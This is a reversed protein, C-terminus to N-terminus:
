RRGTTGDARDRYTRALWGLRLVGPLLVLSVLFGSDSATMEEAGSWASVVAACILTTAVREPDPRPDKERCEFTRWLAASRTMTGTSRTVHWTTCASSLDVEPMAALNFLMRKIRFASSFPRLVIYASATLGMALIVLTGGSAQALQSATVSASSASLSSTLSLLADATARVQAEKDVGGVSVKVDSQTLNFALERLSGILLEIMGRGLLLAALFLIAIIRSWPVPRVSARFDTLAARDSVGVADLEGLAAKAAYDRLLADIARLVHHRVLVSTGLTLRPFSLLSTASLRPPRSHLWVFLSLSEARQMVVRYSALLELVPSEMPRSKPYPESM